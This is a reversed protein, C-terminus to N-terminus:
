YFYNFSLRGKNDIFCTIEQTSSMNNKYKKRGEKKM